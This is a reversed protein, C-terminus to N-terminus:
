RITNSVPPTTAMIILSVTALGAFALWIIQYTGRTDFVWGVLPAGIINGIMAIGIVFGHITGFHSRGFFERIMGARLPNNGGWGFGFLVAFPVLLWVEQASTYELCFLGLAMLGFIGAMIWRKDLKDGLWGFGLRGSVSLLPVATAVLGSMSRAIGISSLYPMIHTLLGGLTIQHCVSVFAIHWFARNKVAQKVGIDVKTAQEGDLRNNPMVTNRVEGDPLYGYQEPKHRVLLSLPLGIALMGLALIFVTMRWEYMNIFRIIVPILLSGAGWGCAVIGTAIGIRKRFWNAVATALVTVSCASWGIAVLAFTGYFMSLSSTRSFLMLGLSIIAVGGFILRRPGWRDVLFGMVPALLGTEMGRLSAAFSIQTYSWSFENAIPQFIATFGYMVIGSTYLAILLSAGVIWWGYFVKRPKWKM